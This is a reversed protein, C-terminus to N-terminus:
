YAVGIKAGQAKLAEGITDDFSKARSAPKKAKVYAARKRSLKRIKRKLEARKSAVGAVYAKRSAKPMAAVPAPLEDDEFADLDKGKKLNDLLDASDLKGSAARYRASEAQVEAAMAANLTVRRRAAAKKAAGGTPLITSSLEMNLKKLEADVPTKMAVMAGDQRISAYMGGSLKAIRTWARRTTGMHGCRVANIVIGRDAASKALKTSYLGDRGEHPPADGVLFVLKLVDQGERWSMKHLADRLARNVHEPTDGGGQARFRRLRAYVDDIDETLDYRRTVYDDGRDRYGILGLRVDPRPQGSVIQNAIAWIKKKAGAILGGMSGTTDLVFVVDVKPPETIKKEVVKIVQRKVKKVPKVPDEGPSTFVVKQKPNSAAADGQRGAIAVAVGLACVASIV